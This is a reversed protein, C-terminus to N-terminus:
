PSVGAALRAFEAAVAEPTQHTLEAIQKFVQERWVNEQQVAKRQAIDARENSVLYGTAAEIATGAKKLSFLLPQQTQIKEKLAVLEVPLRVPLGAALPEEAPPILATMGGDGQAMSPSSVADVTAATAAVAGVAGTLGLFSAVFPGFFILVPMVLVQCALLALGHRVGGKSFVLVIMIFSTLMMPGAILWAAFGFFPLIAVVGVVAMLIWSVRAQLRWPKEPTESVFSADLLDDSM